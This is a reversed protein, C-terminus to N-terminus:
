LNDIAQVFTPLVHNFTAPSIQSQVWYLSMDSFYVEFVEVRFQTFFVLVLSGYLLSRNLVIWSLLWPSAPEISVYFDVQWRSVQYGQVLVATFNTCSPTSLRVMAAVFVTKCRGTKESRVWARRQILGFFDCCFFRDFTFLLPVSPTVIRRGSTEVNTNPSEVLFSWNLLSSWRNSCLLNTGM